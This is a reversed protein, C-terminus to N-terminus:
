TTSIVTVDFILITNAPINAGSGTTGYALASPILLKAVTGVPLLAFAEDWGKIVAGVGLTFVFPTVHGFQADVNSDFETGQTGDSNLVHGTYNVTVSKGTTPVAGTGTTTIVYNLGSATKTSTLNNTTLYKAIIAQENTITGTGTASDGLADSSAATVTTTQTTLPASTLNLAWKGAAPTTLQSDIGLTYTTGNVRVKLNPGNVSDYTGTITPTTTPVSQSVVTPATIITTSVEVRARKYTPTTLTSDVAGRGQHVVIEGRRVGTISAAGKFQNAGDSSAIMNIVSDRGMHIAVAGNFVSHTSNITNDRGMRITVTGGYTSGTSTFTSNKGGELNLLRGNITSQNAILQGVRDTLNGKVTTSELDLKDGSSFGLNVDLNSNVTSQDLKVSDNNRGGHIRISDSIVKTLTLSNDQRGAGLYVNLSSLSATGDGTVTVTNANRNLHMSISAPGTISATFTTLTQGAVQFSTGNQGTMVVQTSTYTVSFQDGTSQQGRTVDTLDISNGNVHVAVLNTLMRRSELIEAQSIAAGSRTGDTARTSGLRRRPQRNRTIQLWAALQENWNRPM